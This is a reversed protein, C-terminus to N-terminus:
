IMEANLAALMGKAKLICEEHEAEAESDITIASGIQFSIYEAAANYFASRIVVNFDFDGEPTIYGISGSYLGRKTREYTEILAMAMVKPAGTMSGMPFAKKIVETFPLFDKIEGEITSIMQHVTKFSYVGFIEPVKITGAKCTRALDNRVLDVIMMNEAVEKESNRLDLKLQEDEEQSTGRRITGKIPQSVIRKGEKKMFREPSSSVVYKDNVRHFASFPAPSLASLRLYLDFPDIKAERALFEMCINVEYVDGELIHEQIREVTDVYVKKSIKPLVKGRWGDSMEPVETNLVEFFIAEEDGETIIEVDKEGFVFLTKPIYFFANPMEIGDPHDSCLLEVENKLDYGWHGFMWEKHERQFREVSEFSHGEEIPCINKAGVALLHKFGGEPYSINHDFLYTCYEEKRGWYWAKLRFSSLDELPFKM